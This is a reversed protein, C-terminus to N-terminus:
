FQDGKTVALCRLDVMDLEEVGRLAISTAGALLAQPVQLACLLILLPSLPTFCTFVQMDVHKVHKTDRM